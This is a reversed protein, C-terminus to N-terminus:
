ESGGSSAEVLLHRLVDLLEEPLGAASAAVGDCERPGDQLAPKCRAEARDVRRKTLAGLPDRRLDMLDLRQWWVLACGLEGLQPQDVAEVRLLIEVVGVVLLLGDRQFADDHGLCEILQPDFDRSQLLEDDLRLLGDIDALLGLEGRQALAQLTGLQGLDLIAAALQQDEGLVAVREDVEFLM